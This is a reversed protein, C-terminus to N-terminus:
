VRQTDFSALMTKIDKYRDAKEDGNQEALKYRYDAIEFATKGLVDEFRYKKRKDMKFDQAGRHLLESVIDNYGFNVARHLATKGTKKPDNPTFPFNIDARNAEYGDNYNLLLQVIPLSGNESALMLATEETTTTSNIEAGKELLEQVMAVRGDRTAKILPTDHHGSQLRANPNAGAKLLLYFIDFSDFAIAMMLATSGMSGDGIKTLELNNDGKIIEDLRTHLLQRYTENQFKGSAPQTLDFAQLILQKKKFRVPDTMEDLLESATSRIPSNSYPERASSSRYRRKVSVGKYRL